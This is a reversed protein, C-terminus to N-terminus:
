FFIVFIQQFEFISIGDTGRFPNPDASQTCLFLYITYIIDCEASGLWKQPVAPLKFFLTEQNALKISAEKLM